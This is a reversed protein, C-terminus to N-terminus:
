RRWRRRRSPPPTARSPCAARGRVDRQLEQGCGERRVGVAEGAELALRLQEGREVVRRDGVEVSELLRRERVAAVSVQEGHLQDLALVEGLPQLAPRNGDVLGHGDGPLDRLSELLRVLLADDM